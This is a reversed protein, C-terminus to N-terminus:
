DDYMEDFTPARQQHRLLSPAGGSDNCTETELDDIHEVLSGPEPEVIYKPGRITDANGLSDAEYIVGRGTRKDIELVAPPNLTDQPTGFFDSKYIKFRHEAQAAPVATLLLFMSLGVALKTVPIIHKWRILSSATSLTASQNM